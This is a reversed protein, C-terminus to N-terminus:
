IYIKVRSEVPGRCLACREPVVCQDCSVLHGCPLNASCAARELCIKCKVFECSPKFVSTGFYKLRFRIERKYLADTLCGCQKYRLKHELVPDLGNNWNGFTEACWYCQVYDEEGLYFLGAEVLERVKVHLRPWGGFTSYRAEESKLQPFAAVYYKRLNLQGDTLPRPSTLKNSPDSLHLKWKGCCAPPYFPDQRHYKFYFFREGCYACEIRKPTQTHFFGRKALEQCNSWFSDPFSLLRNEEYRMLKKYNLPSM